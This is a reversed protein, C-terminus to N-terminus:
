PGVSRACELDGKELLTDAFFEDWGLSGRQARLRQLRDLTERGVRIWASAPFFTEMVERWAAVPMRYVAEKNWPVPEVLFGAPSKVFVTGSFLFRLPIEGGEVAALYKAATVEFDYTCPATLDVEIEGEFAAVSINSQTWTLPHLTTGWRDATGFVDALRDKEEATHARQRPEIRIQTNLLIAQVARAARIRLRFALAPAAAHPVAHAGLVSFEM